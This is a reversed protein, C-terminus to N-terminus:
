VSDSSNPPEKRQHPWSLPFTSKFAVIVAICPVIIKVGSPWFRGLWWLGAILAASFLLGLILNTLIVLFASQVPEGTERSAWRTMWYITASRVLVALILFCTFMIWPSSALVAIAIYTGVLLCNLVLAIRRSLPSPINQENM